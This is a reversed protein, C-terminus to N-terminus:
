AAEGAVLYPRSPVSTCSCAARSLNTMRGPWRLFAATSGRAAEASAATVTVSNEPSSTRMSRGCSHARRPTYQRLCCCTQYCSSSFSHGGCRSGCLVLAELEGRTSSSESSKRYKIIKRDRRVLLQTIRMRRKWIRMLFIARYAIKKWNTHVPNRKPTESWITRRSVRDIRLRHGGIDGLAFFRKHWRATRKM